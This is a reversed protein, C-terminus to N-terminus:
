MFTTPLVKASQRPIPIATRLERLRSMLSLRDVALPTLIPFVSSRFHENAHQREADTLESLKLLRIGHEALAPRIEQTYCAAQQRQLELVVKRIARLQRVRLAADSTSASKGAAAETRLSGVRKMFFEDLNSSFISLFRVRELLPTRPDVAEFLVRRNFELWCLDRNLYDRTSVEELEQLPTESQSTPLSPPM